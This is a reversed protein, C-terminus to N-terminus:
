NEVLRSCLVYVSQSPDSFAFTCSAGIESGSPWGRRFVGPGPSRSVYKCERPTFNYYTGVPDRM